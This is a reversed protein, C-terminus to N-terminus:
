GVGGDMGTTTYRSKAAFLVRFRVINVGSLVNRLHASQLSWFTSAPYLGLPGVHKGLRNLVVVGFKIEVGHVFSLRHLVIAFVYLLVVLVKNLVVKIKTRGVDGGVM